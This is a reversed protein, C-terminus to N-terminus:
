YLKVINPHDLKKLIMYENKLSDPNRVLRKQIVKVVRDAFPPRMMKAQYVTGYAGKGIPKIACYTGQPLIQLTKPHLRDAVSYLLGEQHGAELVHAYLPLPM